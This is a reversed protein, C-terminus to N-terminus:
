ITKSEAPLRYKASVTLWRTRLISAAVWIMEVTAPAPAVPEVASPTAAVLAYKAEGVPTASSLEPLRYTPSKALLRIRSTAAEFPYIEVIAPLPRCVRPPSPPAAALAESLSGWYTAASAAPFTYM